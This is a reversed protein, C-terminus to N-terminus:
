KLFDYPPAIQVSPAEVAAPAGPSPAPNDVLSEETVRGSAWLAVTARGNNCSESIIFDRYKSFSKARKKETYGIMRKRMKEEDADKPPALTPIGLEWSFPPEGSMMDKAPVPASSLLPNAPFANWATLMIAENGPQAHLMQRLVDKHALAWTQYRTRLMTAKEIRQARLRKAEAPQEWPREPENNYVRHRALSSLFSLGGLVLFSFVIAVSAAIITRRKRTKEAKDAKQDM